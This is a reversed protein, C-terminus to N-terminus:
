PNVDSLYVFTSTALASLKVRNWVDLNKKHDTDQVDWDLDVQVQWGIASGLAADSCIHDWRCLRLESEDWGCLTQDRSDALRLRVEGRRV